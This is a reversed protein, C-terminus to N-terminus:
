WLGTATATATAIATATATATAIATATAADLSDVRTIDADASRMNEWLRSTIVEFRLGSADSLAEDAV